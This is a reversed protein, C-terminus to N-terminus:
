PASAGRRRVSRRSPSRRGSGPRAGADARFFSPLSRSGRDAPDEVAAEAELRVDQVDLADAGGQQRGKGAKEPLRDDDGIVASVVIMRLPAADAAPRQPEAFEVGEEEGVADDDDGVPESAIDTLAIGGEGLLDPDDGVAGVVERVFGRIRVGRACDHLPVAQLRAGERDTDAAQHRFLTEVHDDVRQRAQRMRRLQHDAAAGVM